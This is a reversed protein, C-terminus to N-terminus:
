MHAQVMDLISPSLSASASVSRAAGERNMVPQWASGDAFRTTQKQLAAALQTFGGRSNSVFAVAGSMLMLDVVADQLRCTGSLSSDSHLNRRSKANPPPFTTFCVARIGAQQLGEIMSPDDTALHIAGSLRRLRAGHAKLLAQTDSKIDTNRVHISIYGSAPLQARAWRYREQILPSPHLYPLLDFTSRMGFISWTSVLIVGTPDSPDSATKLMDRDLQLKAKTQSDYWGTSRNIMQHAGRMYRVLDNWGMKKPHVTRPARAIIERVGAAGGQVIVHSLPHKADLRFNDWFDVGYGEPIPHRVDFVIKRKGRHAVKSMESLVSIMDNLGAMCHVYVYRNSQSM